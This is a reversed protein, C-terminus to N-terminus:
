SHKGPRGGLAVDGVAIQSALAPGVWTLLLPLVGFWVPVSVLGAFSIAALTTFLLALGTGFWAWRTLDLGREEALQVTVFGPVVTVAALAALVLAMLPVVIALSVLLDTV